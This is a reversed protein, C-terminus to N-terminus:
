NLFHVYIHKLHIYSIDFSRKPNRLLIHLVYLFFWIQYLSTLLDTIYRRSNFLISKMYVSEFVTAHFNSKDNKMSNNRKNNIKM